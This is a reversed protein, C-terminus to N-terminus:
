VEMYYPIDPTVILAPRSLGSAISPGPMAADDLRLDDFVIEPLTGGVAGCRIRDINATNTDTTTSAYAAGFEDDNLAVFMELIGNAGTGVTHRFGVRVIDGANLVYTSGVQAAATNFLALGTTRLRVSGGAAGGGSRPQFFSITSGPLAKVKLYFSAILTTVGTFDEQVYSNIGTVDASYGGKLPNTSTVAIGTGSSSDAGDTGTLTGGEFTIDKLRTM